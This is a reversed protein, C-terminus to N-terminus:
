CSFSTVPGDSTAPDFTCTSKPADFVTVGNQVVTLTASTFAMDLIQEEWGNDGPSNNCDPAGAIPTTPADTTVSYSANGNHKIEHPNLHQSGTVTVPAPNQGPPRHGGTGPNVCEATPNATATLTVDAGSGTGLGALTGTETLTLGNDTFQPSGHKWHVSAALASQSMLALVALSAVAITLRRMM